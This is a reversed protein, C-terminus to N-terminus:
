NTEKNVWDEYEKNSEVNFKIIGPIRYPHIKKIETKIKTWNEKRTKLLLTIQNVEKIKGTWNSTSKIPFSNASSILRKRLLYSIAKNAEKINPYNVKIIIFGMKVM